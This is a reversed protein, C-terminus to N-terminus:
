RGCLTLVAWCGEPQASTLNRSALPSRPSTKRRWKDAQPQGMFDVPVGHQVSSNGSFRSHLAGAPPPASSTPCRDSYKQPELEQGTIEEESWKSNRPLCLLFSIIKRVEGLTLQCRLSLSPNDSTVPKHSLDQRDWTWRQECGVTARKSDLLDKETEKETECSNGAWFSLAFTVRNCM